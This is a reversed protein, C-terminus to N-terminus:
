VHRIRQRRWILQVLPPGEARKGGLQLVGDEVRGLAKGLCGTDEELEGLGGRGLCINHKCSEPESLGKHRVLETDTKAM